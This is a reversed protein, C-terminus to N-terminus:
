LSEPPLLAVRQGGCWGSAHSALSSAVVALGSRRGDILRSALVRGIREGHEDLIEDSSAAAGDIQQFASLREKLRGLYHVRAIVEQGPYCGKSYSLGGREELGLAQPLYQASTQPNLWAIGARLDADYWSQEQRTDLRCDPQNLSLRRSPELVLKQDESGATWSGAVVPCTAFSLRRGISYMRLARELGALQVAPVLLEVDDENVRGVIIELVRGKPNCRATLEWGSAQRQLFSSTFQSHAFARADVGTVRLGALESLRFWESMQQRKNRVLLYLELILLASVRSM